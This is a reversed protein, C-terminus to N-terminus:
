AEGGPAPAPITDTFRGLCEQALRVLGAACTPCYSEGDLEHVHTEACREGCGDCDVASHITWDDTVGPGPVAVLDLRDLTAHVRAVCEWDCEDWLLHFSISEGPAAERLTEPSIHTTTRM